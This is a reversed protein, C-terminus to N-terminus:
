CHLFCRIEMSYVISLSLWSGSVIFASLITVIHCIGICQHYHDSMVSCQLMFSWSIERWANKNLSCFASRMLLTYYSRSLGTNANHWQSWYYRHRIQPLVLLASLEVTTRKDHYDTIFQKYVLYLSIFQKYVLYLSIFQKYVLYLSIFQKYVLYLSIFQKYVLYVITYPIM